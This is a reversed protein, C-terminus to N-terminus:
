TTAPTRGALVADAIVVGQTAGIALARCRFRLWHAVGDATGSAYGSLARAHGPPDALLAAEPVAVGTPDVGRGVVLARSLARAVVGNGALFPQLVLLEAEVVAALVPVPAGTTRSLLASLGELRSGLDAAACAQAGAATSVGGDLPVEDGVRPRGVASEDLVHSATAVHLRVLAQWPSLTVSRAGHGGLRDAEAAARVAGMVVSGVADSPLLVAGRVADRVVPVPLRAGELAASCRAVWVGAEVRCEAARRRMAPHWRLEDCAARAAVVQEGVGPLGALAQVPDAVTV